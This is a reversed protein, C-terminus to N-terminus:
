VDQAPYGIDALVSLIDSLNAPQQWDVVINKATVDGNVSVVGPMSALENKINNLCHQCSIEPIHLTKNSM